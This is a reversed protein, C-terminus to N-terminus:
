LTDNNDRVSYRSDRYFVSEYNMMEGQKYIKWPIDEHSYASLESANKDALRALVEDIHQIERASLLSLDPKRLPLYKKQEYKFHKSKVKEIEENKIMLDVVASFNIPTPGHHNRMYKAGTLQEEFKEYYDFDIFYLLKYLVTEGVNPKCGVKQLVYLLVEKFKETDVEDLIIRINEEKRKKSDEKTRKIEVEVKRTQRGTILDVVTIGFLKALKKVEKVTVDREGSEIQIYTPRSMHLIEAVHKQSYGQKERLKKIQINVM